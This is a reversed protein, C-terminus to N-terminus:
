LIHSLSVAGIAFIDFDKGVANAACACRASPCHKNCPCVGFLSFDRIHSPPVRLSVNELLSACSKLGRYVQVFFIADLRHRRKRLSQLSLKELADNYTYPVHPVFRYFCVSAFKQQIRELKNADTSTISNVVVSAYELKSRVLTFYLVYLCEIIIALAPRPQDGWGPLATESPDFIIFGFVLIWWQMLGKAAYMCWIDGPNGGRHDVRGDREWPGLTGRYWLTERGFNHIWKNNEEMKVMNGGWRIRWCLVASRQVASPISLPMRSRLSECSHSSHSTKHTTVGHLKTRVCWVVRRWMWSSLVEESKQRDAGKLRLVKCIERTRPLHWYVHAGVTLWRRPMEGRRAAQPRRPVARTAPAGPGQLVASVQGQKPM